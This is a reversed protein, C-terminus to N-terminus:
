ASPFAAAIRDRVSAVDVRGGARRADQEASATVVRVGRTSFLAGVLPWDAEIFWLVGVVPLAEEGLAARVCEVQGLVGDVLKTRDRGGVM